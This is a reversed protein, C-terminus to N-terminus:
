EKIYKKCYFNNYCGFSSNFNIKNTKVKFRGTNRKVRKFEDTLLETEESAMETGSMRGAMMKERLLSKYTAYDLGVADELGLLRLIREDIEETVFDEERSDPVYVALADSSKENRISNLLDDLGEPINKDDFPNIM